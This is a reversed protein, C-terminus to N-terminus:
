QFFLWFTRKSILRVSFVPTRIMQKTDADAFIHIDRIRREVFSSFINNFCFRKLYIGKNQLIEDGYVYHHVFYPGFTHCFSHQNNKWFNFHPFKWYMLRIEVLKCIFLYGHISPDNFYCFLSYWNVFNNHKILRWFIIYIIKTCNYFVIFRHFPWRLLVAITSYLNIAVWSM